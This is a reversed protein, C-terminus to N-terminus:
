ILGQRALLRTVKQRRPPEGPNEGELARRFGGPVPNRRFEERASILRPGYDPGM